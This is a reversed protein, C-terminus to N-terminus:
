TIKIDELIDNQCRESKEYNLQLWNIVFEILDTIQMLSYGVIIGVIGGVQSFLAYINYARKNVTEKYEVPYDIILNFIQVLRTSNPYTMLREYHTVVSSMQTCPPLYDKPTVEVFSLPLYSASLEKLKEQNCKPLNTSPTSRKFHNRMFPPICKAKQVWYQRWQEDDNDSIRNCGVNSDHRKRLIDISQVGIKNKHRFAMQDLEGNEKFLGLGIGLVAARKGLARIFQGKLHVYFDVYSGFSALWTANGRVLEFIKQHKGGDEVKKTLCIRASDQYSIDFSEDLSSTFKNSINGSMEKIQQFHLQIQKRINIVLDDYSTNTINYLNDCSILSSANEKGILYNFYIKSCEAGLRDKFLGGNPSYLCFSFIPYVDEKHHHFDKYGLSSVDDNKQYENFQEAVMYILLSFLAIKFVIIALKVIDVM